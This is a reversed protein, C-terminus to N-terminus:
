VRRTIKQGTKRMANLEQPTHGYGTRSWGGAPGEKLVFSSAGSILRKPNAAGCQPCAELRPEWIRQEATFPGCTPCSYEYTM